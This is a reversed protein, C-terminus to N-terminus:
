YLMQERFQLYLLLHERKKGAKNGILLSLYFMWGFILDSEFIGQKKFLAFLFLFGCVSTSLPDPLMQRTLTHGPPDPVGEEGRVPIKKRHPSLMIVGRSLDQRVLKFILFDTQRNTKYITYCM